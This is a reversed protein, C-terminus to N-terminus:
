KQCTSVSEFVVGLLDLQQNEANETPHSPPSPPIRVRLEPLSLASIRSNNESERQFRTGWGHGFLDLTDTDNVDIM